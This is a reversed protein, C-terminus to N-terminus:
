GCIDNVFDDGVKIKFVSEEERDYVAIEIGEKRAGVAEPGTEEFGIKLYIRTGGFVLIYIVEKRTDKGFM